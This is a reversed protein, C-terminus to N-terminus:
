VTWVSATAKAVFCDVAARYAREALAISTNDALGRAGSGDGPLVYAHVNIQESREIFVEGTAYLDMEPGDPAGDGDYGGGAVVKAGTKTYFKGGTEVLLGLGFAVLAVSRPVHLTPQGAYTAAAHGELLGLAAGVPVAAGPTLDTPADWGVATGNFGPDYDDARAVFRNALLAREIGRGEAAAFARRVEAQQDEVDLGVNSCQVGGYVAFSFGPVWPATSFEKPERQEDDLLPDPCIPTPVALDLCNYSPWMGAENRLGFGDTMDVVTAHDLITSKIPEPTPRTVERARIIQTM